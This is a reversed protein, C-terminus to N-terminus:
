LNSGNEQLRSRLATLGDTLLRPRVKGLIIVLAKLEDWGVYLQHYVGDQWSSAVM